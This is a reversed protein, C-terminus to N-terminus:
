LNLLHRNAFAASASSDNATRNGAQPVKFFYGFNRVVYIGNDTRTSALGPVMGGSVDAPVRFANPNSRVFDDFDSSQAQRLATTTHCSVCDIQEVSHIDPNEIRLFANAVIQSATKDQMFDFTSDSGRAPAPKFESGAFTAMAKNNINPINFVVYSGDAKLDGSFFIWPDGNQTGMFAIRKLNAAGMNRTIFANVQAAFALNGNTSALGPHVNLPGSTSVPSAQKIDLLERAIRANDAAELHYILHATMDATETASATNGFAVPQVVLRLQVICNKIDTNSLMPACPDYRMSVVRWNGRSQGNIADTFSIVSLGNDMGVGLGKAKSIVKTFVDQPWLEGRGGNANMPLLMAKKAESPLPFLISVDNMDLKPRSLKVPSLLNRSVVGREVVISSAGSDGRCEVEWGDMLERLIVSPDSLSRFNAKGAIVLSSNISCKEGSALSKLNGNADRIRLFRKDITGKENLTVLEFSGLSNTLSAGRCLVTMSNSLFRRIAGVDPRNPDKVFRDRFNAGGDASDVVVEQNFTCSNPLTSLESEKSSNVEGCSTLILPFFLGALRQHARNM